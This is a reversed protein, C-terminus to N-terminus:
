HQALVLIESRHTAPDLRVLYAPLEGDQLAVNTRGDCGCRAVMADNVKAFRDLNTAAAALQNDPIHLTLTREAVKVSSVLSTGDVRMNKEIWRAFVRENMAHVQPFERAAQSIAPKLTRRRSKAASADDRGVIVWLQKSWKTIAHPDTGPLARYRAIAAEAGALDAHAIAQNINNTEVTRQSAAITALLTASQAAGANAAEHCISLQEATPYAPAGVKYETLCLDDTIERRQRDSLRPDNRATVLEQHATTYDGAAIASRAARLSAGACGALLGAALLALLARAARPLPRSMRWLLGPTEM